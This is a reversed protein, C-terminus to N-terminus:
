LKLYSKTRNLKQASKETGDPCSGGNNLTEIQANGYIDEGWCFGMLEYAFVENTSLSVWRREKGNAVEIRLLGNVDTALFLGEAKLMDNGITPSMYISIGSVIKYHADKSVYSRVEINETSNLLTTLGIKDKIKLRLYKPKEPMSDIYVVDVKNGGQRKLNQYEKFTAKTFPIERVSLAVSRTLIPQGVQQFNKSIFSKDEKGIAGISPMDIKTEQKKQLPACSFLVVAILLCLYTPKM